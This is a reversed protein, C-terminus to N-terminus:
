MSHGMYYAQFQQTFKPYNCFVISCVPGGLGLRGNVVLFYGNKFARCYVFQYVVSLWFGDSHVATTIPFFFSCAPINPPSIVTCPLLLLVLRPLTIGPSGKKWSKIEAINWCFDLSCGTPALYAGLLVFENLHLQKM